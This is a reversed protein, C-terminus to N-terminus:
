KRSMNINDIYIELSNQMMEIEFELRRTSYANHSAFLLPILDPSTEKKILLRLKPKLNSFYSTNDIIVIKINKAFKVDIQQPRINLVKTQKKIDFDKIQNFVLLKSKDNNYVYIDFNYLNENTTVFQEITTPTRCEKIFTGQSTWM